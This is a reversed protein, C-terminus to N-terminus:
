RKAIDRFQYLLREILRLDDTVIDATGIMEQQFSIKKRYSTELGKPLTVYIILNGEKDPTLSITRVIGSIIGFERDPYNALRINVAQGIKIKGSNQAPAKVKGIYNKENSPIVAFVNDGSNVTQNEAWLQLFSVEGDISSRLVYRLEWEKIAQKLALFSQIMNRQLNVNVTREKIKNNKTNRELENMSSKLLSVTNLLNRYEREVRLYEIKHNEFEQSAIIGKNHLTEYRNLQNKKLILESQNISKQSLLLRLRDKLQIAENGQANEEVQFPQFEKNLEAAIYERQFTAFFFEIEGLQVSQFMDFPFMSHELNISDVVKKLLFVDKYDASSEIVALPTNRSVIARDKILLVEIKGPTQVVLKEPPITTTIVIQTSIAEPYKIMWSVLFLSLFILLITLSGWRIMWSPVRTLIEQVDESRLAIDDRNPM